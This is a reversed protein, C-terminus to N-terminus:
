RKGERVSLLEKRRQVTMTIIVPVGARMDRVERLIDRFNYTWGFREEFFSILKMIKAKEAKAEGILLAEEKQLLNEVRNRLYKSICSRAGHVTLGQVHPLVEKLLRKRIPIWEKALADAIRYHRNRSTVVYAILMIASLILLLWKANNEPRCMFTWIVGPTVALLAYRTIRLDSLRQRVARFALESNREYVAVGQESRSMYLEAFSELMALTTDSENKM